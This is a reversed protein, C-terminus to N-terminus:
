AAGLVGIIKRALGLAEGAAKRSVTKGCDYDADNRKVRLANLRNGVASRGSNIYHNATLEHVSGTASRIKAEERAVLFAGYYARSVITRARAEDEGGEKFLSSAIDYFEIPRFPM